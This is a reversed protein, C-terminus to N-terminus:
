ARQPAADEEAGARTDPIRGLMHRDVAGQREGHAAEDAERARRRARGNQGREVLDAGGADDVARDLVNGATLEPAHQEGAGEQALGVEQDEVLRDLADIHGTLGLQELKDGLDPAPAAAAHEHHGVIEVQDHRRGVLNDAQVAVDAAGAVGLRDAPVRGIEGQEPRPHGGLKRKVGM